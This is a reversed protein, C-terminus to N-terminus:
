IKKATVSLLTRGKIQAEYKGQCLISIFYLSYFLAGSLLKLNKNIKFKYSYCRIYKSSM